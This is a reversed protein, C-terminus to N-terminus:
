KSVLVKNTFIIKGDQRLSLFYIGNKIGDANFTIENGYLNNGEKEIGGLYNYLSFSANSLLRNTKLVAQTSFPNPYFIYEYVPFPIENVSAFTNCNSPPPIPMCSSYGCSYEYGLYEVSCENNVKFKWTKKVDCGDFCDQWEYTFNYYRSDGFVNYTISGALGIMYNPEVSIVGQILSISDMLAPMNWSSETSLTAYNGQSWYDFATVTLDYNKLISNIFADDSFTNLNQWVKTWKYNTDVKVIFGGYPGPWGNFNRVCYLNFVSDSEPISKAYIIAAMGGAISDTYVKPITVLATDPSQIQFLRTTALQAIDRKYASTLEFPIDCTSPGQAILLNSAFFFIYVFLFKKM